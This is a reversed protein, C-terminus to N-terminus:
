NMVCEEARKNEDVTQDILNTVFKPQQLKISLSASSNVKTSDSPDTVSITVNGAYDKQCNFIRMWYRNGDCGIEVLNGKSETFEQDRWTWVAPMFQRDIYCEFEATNAVFVSANKLPQYVTM